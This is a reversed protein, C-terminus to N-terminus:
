RRCQGTAPGHVTNPIGLDAPATTNAACTLPGSVTVGAVAPSDNRTLSVPGRVAGGLVQVAGTTGTITLPGGVTTHFLAV